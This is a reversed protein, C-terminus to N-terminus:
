ITFGLTMHIRPDGLKPSGPDGYSYICKSVVNGFSCLYPDINPTAQQAM